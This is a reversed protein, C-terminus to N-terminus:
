AARRAVAERTAREALAIAYWRSADLRSRGDLGLAIWRVSERLRLATPPGDPPADPARVAVVWADSERRVAPGDGSADELSWRGAWTEIVRFREPQEDLTSRLTARTLHRGLRQTLLNFLEGIRLAPHPSAHLVAEAHDSITSV